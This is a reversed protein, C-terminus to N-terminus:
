STAPTDMPCARFAQVAPAAGDLSASFSTVGSQGSVFDNFELGDLVNGFGKDRVSLTFGDPEFRHQTTGIQLPNAGIFNMTFNAGGDWDADLLAVTLAYEPLRPDYTVTILATDSQHTLTCVPDPSFDWALAPFPALLLALVTRM